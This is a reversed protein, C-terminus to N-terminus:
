AWCSATPDVPLAPTIFDPHTPKYELGSSLLKTVECKVTSFLHSNVILSCHLPEVTGGTKPRGGSWTKGPVAGDWPALEM